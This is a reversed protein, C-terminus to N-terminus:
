GDQAYQQAKSEVVSKRQVPLAGVEDYINVAITLIKWLKRLFTGLQRLFTAISKILMCFLLVISFRSLTWIAFGNPINTVTWIEVFM